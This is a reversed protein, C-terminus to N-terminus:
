GDGPEACLPDNPVVVPSATRTHSYIGNPGACKWAVNMFQDPFNVVNAPLDDVEGTPADGTPSTDGCGVLAVLVVALIGRRM